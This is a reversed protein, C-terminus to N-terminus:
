KRKRNNSEKSNAFRANGVAGAERAIESRRAASLKAARALGGMRAIEKRRAKSVAM